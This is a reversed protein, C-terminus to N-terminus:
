SASLLRDTADEIKKHHRIKGDIRTAIDGSPYDDSPPFVAVMGDIGALEKWGWNHNELLCEIAWDVSDELDPPEHEHKYRYPELEHLRRHLSRYMQEINFDIDKPLEKAGALSGRHRKSFHTTFAIVDMSTEAMVLTKPGDQIPRDKVKVVM